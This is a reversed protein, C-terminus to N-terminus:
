ARRAGVRVQARPRASPPRGAPRGAQPVADPGTQRGIVAHAPYRGASGLWEGIRRAAAACRDDLPRGGLEATCDREARWRGRGDRSRTCRAICRQLIQASTPRTTTM